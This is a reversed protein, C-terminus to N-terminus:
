VLKDLVDAIEAEPVNGVLQQEINGNKFVLINPFKYIFLQLLHLKSMGYKAADGILPFLVTSGALIFSFAVIGFVFPGILEKIIYRDILKLSFM